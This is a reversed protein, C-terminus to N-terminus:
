VHVPEKRTYTRYAGGGHIDVDNRLPEVLLPPIDMRVAKVLWNVHQGPTGRVEFIGDEPYTATPAVIQDGMGTLLVVRDQVATLAEFYQPLAVEALGYKNLEATGWYEVGNHPSETSAHILYRGHHM